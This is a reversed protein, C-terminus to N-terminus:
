NCQLASPLPGYVCGRGQKVIGAPFGLAKNIRIARSLFNRNGPWRTLAVTVGNPIDLIVIFVPKSQFFRAFLIAGPRGATTFLKGDFVQPFSFQRPKGDPGLMTRTLKYVSKTESLNTVLQYDVTQCDGGLDGNTDTETVFFWRGELDLTGNSTLQAVCHTAVLILVIVFATRTQM